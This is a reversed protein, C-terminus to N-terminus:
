KEGPMLDPGCIDGRCLPCVRHIEKLWKDICTRHFEHNCPLRRISDGEEYEVLCIYCQVAEDNKLKPSKYVKVPLSEVVENPAPVSGIPSVSPRSSLVMSQQHIEDLVEFLAEALMVIRSVSSRAGTTDDNSSSDRNNVRCTCRGSRHQGSLICSREHGSFNEFRSGLRQLARVQSRIRRRRELFNSRHHLLDHYRAERSRSTEIEDHSIVSSAHASATTSPSTALQQQTIQIDQQLPCFTPARGLVRDRLRGVSLARSFRANSELTEGSGDSDNFIIPSCSNRPPQQPELTESDDDPNLMEASSGMSNARSFRFSLNGPLFSIGSLCRSPSRHAATVAAGSTSGGSSICPTPLPLQMEENSAAEGEVKRNSERKVLDSESAPQKRHDFNPKPSASRSLAGLCSSRFVRNKVKSRGRLGGSSSSSAAPATDRGGGGVRCCGKSGGSGM